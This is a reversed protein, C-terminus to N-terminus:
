QRRLTNLPRQVREEITELEDQNFDIGCTLCQKEGDLGSLQHGTLRHAIFLLHRLSDEEASNDM